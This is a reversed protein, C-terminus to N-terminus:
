EGLSAMVIINGLPSWFLSNCQKGSLTEIKNLESIKSTTTITKKGKKITTEADKKMDYFSVSTKTSTPSEAHIMAFKTGNPEWALAQVSDNEELMEVPVGNEYLSFLEINNFLTKKSKTHRVVKVALYTGDPHWSLSCKAVNFLNKQRMKKRSPIAVIDVHAPANGHEPCWYSLINEPGKPTWQFEKIGPSSLSRKDLLKMDKTDYISIIDKGMRALYADDPSFSFVPVPENDPFDKPRLPFERLLNGTEVEFVKIAKDDKPNDTITLIFKEQPSFEVIDVGPAPFRNLKRFNEGGWTLVGKNPILTAVYSGKSSWQMYYDCWPTGNKADHKGDYCLIPEGNGMGGDYWM